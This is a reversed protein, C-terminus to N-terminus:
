PWDIATLAVRWPNRETIQTGSPFLGSFFAAIIAWPASSTM